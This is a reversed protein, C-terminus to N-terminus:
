PLSFSQEIVASEVYLRHLLRECQHIELKMMDHSIDSANGTHFDDSGDDVALSIWCYQRGHSISATFRIVLRHTRSQDTMVLCLM